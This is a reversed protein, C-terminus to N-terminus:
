RLRDPPRNHPRLALPTPGTHQVPTLGRVRLSRRLPVLRPEDPMDVPAADPVTPTTARPTVVSVTAPADAAAPVTTPVTQSPLFSYKGHNYMKRALRNMVPLCDQHLYQMMADSHWRGLLKITDTDTHACLLAMAGGARLSRASIRSPPIGTSPELATAAFRLQKTIDTARISIINHNTYYTALKATLDLPHGSRRFWDRHRLVFRTISRVPCCLPHLSKGHAISDGKRQNKQTTFYLSTSTAAELERDPSTVLDLKRSGLFLSVDDLRFAADDNTTGTYEGPRLLFFFAICVMDAFACEAPSRLDPSPAYALNLLFTVLTIPVPRVRSPPAEAKTWCRLQQAIRYDIKGNFHSIRPDKAGMRLLVQGISCLVNSVTNATVPNGSASLIGEHYEHGFLTLFPVPDDYERLFPDIGTDSCFSNWIAWHTDKSKATKPTVGNVIDAQVALQHTQLVNRLKPPLRALM